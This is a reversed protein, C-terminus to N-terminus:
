SAFIWSAWFANWFGDVHIGPAVTLALYFLVAQAGFGALLVGIWGLLLAFSTLMPRLLAAVVGLLATAM